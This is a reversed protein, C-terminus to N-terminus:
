EFISIKQFNELIVQQHKTQILYMQQKVQLHHPGMKMKLKLKQQIKM